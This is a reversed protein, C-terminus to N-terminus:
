QSPREGFIARGIRVITAGEAIAFQYDDTMGMSLEPLDLGPRVALLRDRLERLGAFIARNGREDLGLPAVTMLGRVQLQPLALLASLQEDLQGARFGPRGPDDGLYVELLVPVPSGDALREIEEALRLSDVSQLIAFLSLAAKVKNRQLTGVLHWELPTDVLERIRPLKQAAEQVRNEGFRRLGLRAAEAVQQASYTKTVAVLKVDGPDRRSKIAATAITEHVRAINNRLSTTQTQLYARV